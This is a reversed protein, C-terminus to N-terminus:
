ACTIAPSGTVARVASYRRRCDLGRPERELLRRSRAGARSAEPALYPAGCVLAAICAALTFTNIGADEEWRDQDSAPGNRVIFGLARRIM